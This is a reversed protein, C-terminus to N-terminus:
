GTATIWCDSQFISLYVEVPGINTVLDAIRPAFVAEPHGDDLIIGLWGARCGDVGLVRM